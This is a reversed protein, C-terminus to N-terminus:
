KGGVCDVAGAALLHCVHSFCFSLFLFGSSGSIRAEAQAQVDRLPRIINVHGLFPTGAETPDACSRTSIGNTCFSIHGRVLACLIWHLARWHQDHATTVTNNPHANGSFDLSLLLRCPMVSYMQMRVVTLTCSQWFNLLLIIVCGSMDYFLAWLAVQKAVVVM